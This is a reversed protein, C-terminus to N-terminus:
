QGIATPAPAPVIWNPTKMVFAAQTSDFTGFRPDVRVNAKALQDLLDQKDDATLYAVATNARLVDKTLESAGPIKGLRANYVDDPQWAGLQAVKANVFPTLILWALTASETVKPDLLQIQTTTEALQKTTITTGEVEAAVGSRGAGSCGALTLSGAFLTVGVVSTSIRRAIM